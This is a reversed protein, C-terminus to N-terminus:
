VVGNDGANGLSHLSILRYLSKVARHVNGIIANEKLLKTKHHRSAPSNTKRSHLLDDWSGELCQRSSESLEQNCRISHIIGLIASDKGIYKKHPLYSM